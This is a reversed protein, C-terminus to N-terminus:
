CRSEVAFAMAVALYAQLETMELKFSVLSPMNIQYSMLYKEVFKPDGLTM